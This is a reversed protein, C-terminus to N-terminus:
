PVATVQKVSSGFTQVRCNDPYRSELQVRSEGGVGVVVMAAAHTLKLCCFLATDRSKKNLEPKESAHSGEHLMLVSTRAAASITITM